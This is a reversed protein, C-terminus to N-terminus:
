KREVTTEASYVVLEAGAERFYRQWFEKVRNWTQPTMGMTTAGYVYVRYGSMPVLLGQQKVYEIMKTSGTAVLAPMAFEQSENMMDSFIFVERVVHDTNVSEFAAKVRWLGGIIDTGAAVPSLESAKDEFAAVLQNRARNLNERFVGPASPTWGKLISQVSGFSETSIVFVWVRSEPPETQLLKKAGFLYEQYLESTGTKKAVSGSVDLLSGELRKVNSQAHAALVSTLFVPVTLAARFYPLHQRRQYKRRGLWVGKLFQRQAIEVQARLGRQEKLLDALRGKSNKIERWALRDEDTKLRIAMALLMGLIVDAALMMKILASRLMGQAEQGESQEQEPSSVPKQATFTADEVFNDPEQQSQFYDLLAGRARALDYLALFCAAFAALIVLSSLLKHKDFVRTFAFHGAGAIVATLSVGLVAALLLGMGFLHFTVSHGAASAILVPLLLLLNILLLVNKALIRTDSPQDPRNYLQDVLAEVHGETERIEGEIRCLAPELRHQLTQIEMGGIELALQQDRTERLAELGLQEYDIRKHWSKTM